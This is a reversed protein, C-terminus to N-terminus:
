PLQKLHGLNKSNKFIKVDAFTELFTWRLNIDHESNLVQPCLSWISILHANQAVEDQDANKAFEAIKM